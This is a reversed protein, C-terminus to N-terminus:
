PKLYHVSDDILNTYFTSSDILPTSITQGIGIRGMPHLGGQWYNQIEFRICPLDGGEPDLIALTLDYVGPNLNAPLNIMASVSNTAAPTQFSQSNTNWATGPLWQRIDVQSLNTAYVMQGTAESMLGVQVPWQYYFPSSGTNVVSFAIPVSQGAVATLPQDFETILFHYGIASRMAEGGASGSPILYSNDWGLHSTHATRVWNLLNTLGAGSLNQSIDGPVYIQDDARIEGGNAAIHWRTGNDLTAIAALESNYLSYGFSDEYYGFQYNTSIQTNVVGNTGDFNPIGVYRIMVKKNHFANTFQQCMWNAFVPMYDLHWQEGYKGQIGMEVWAVRPDNDWVQGLRAILRGIRAQVVPNTYWPSEYYNTPDFYPLDAPIYTGANDVLVIRPVARTNQAPLNIWLQDCFNQLDTVTNTANNEFENWGIYWKEVTEYGPDLVWAGAFGSGAQRVGRWGTMPNKVSQGRPKPYISSIQTAPAAAVGRWRYFCAGSSTNVSIVYNTGNQSGPVDHWDNASALGVSNSQLIWGLYATPWALTLNGNSVVTSIPINMSTNPASSLVSLVQISGNAALNNNWIYGAPLGVADFGSVPQNFLTFSQGNTLAPGVNTVLLLGGNIVSAGSGAVVVSDNTFAGAATNLELVATAGSNITLNNSITLVGVANNGPSLTTGANLTVPGAISGTGGLTGSNTICVTDAGALSGNVLLTGSNVTTAGAYTNTGSLILTGSGNMVLSMAGALSGAGALTYIKNTNNVTVSGPQLAGILNLSTTGAASDDLTVFDDEHFAMTAASQNLWNSTSTDWNGNVNGQWTLAAGTYAVVLDYSKNSVNNSISATLGSPLTFPTASISGGGSVTAYQLLPFQGGGFSSALGVVGLSNVGNLMLNNVSIVPAAPGGAPLTFSVKAGSGTGLSLSSLNLTSTTADRAVNLTAGDDVSVTGGGTQASSVSLQGASVTTAGSYTNGGSLTLTGASVKTIGGGGSVIGGFSTSSGDGVTLLGNGLIVNGGAAGGGSLSAIQQNLGNLNFNAGPTNFLILSTTIPLLNDGGSIQLTGDSIITSGAYTNDATLILTGTGAKTLNDSTAGTGHLLPQAITINYGATDIVAGGNGVNAATLGQMFTTTSATPKLTGGGFNITSSNTGGGTSPITSISGANLVGGNLNYTGSRSVADAGGQALVLSTATNTGGNQTFIGTSAGGSNFGAVTLTPTTLNGTGSLNFSGTAGRLGVTISSNVALTGGSLNWTGNGGGISIGLSVTNANILGATQNVIGAAGSGSGLTMFSFSSTGSSDYQLTGSQSSNLGLYIGASGSGYNGSGSIWLTGGNTVSIQGTDTNAATLKLTGPGSLTWATSGALVASFTNFKGNGLAKVTISPGNGALTLTNGAVGNNDLTWGAATGTGTDGFILTTLTRAGDLHVIMPDTTIDITSFDATSGNGSAVTGGLWNVPASWLGGSTTQTWVGNAAHITASAVGLLMM